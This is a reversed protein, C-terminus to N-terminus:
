PHVGVVANTAACRRLSRRVCALSEAGWKQEVADCQTPRAPTRLTACARAGPVASAPFRAHNEHPNLATSIIRSSIESAIKM